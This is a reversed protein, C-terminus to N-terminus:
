DVEDHYVEVTDGVQDALWVAAETLVAVLTKIEYVFVPVSQPEPHDDFIIYILPDQAEDPGLAEVTIGEAVEFIKTM